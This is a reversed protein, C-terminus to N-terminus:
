VVIRRKSRLAAIGAWVIAFISSSTCPEPVSFEDSMTFKNNNWAIFDQGDVTGDANFDGSCWAATSTFKHRNWEIFDQGDVAGNLDADGVLIPNGSATLIAGALVRWQDLDAHNVFGDGNVDYDLLHSGAVIIAVLQNVWDCDFQPGGTPQNSAGPTDAVPGQMPDLSFQGIVFGGTRDPVRYVHGPVFTGDPGIDTFGLATGYFWEFGPQMSDPQEVLGLADIVSGWPLVDLSGDDDIDLDDNDAGFFGSVLVHTVNDSNEFNLNRIASPMIGNFITGPAGFTSEAALFYGNAPVTLGALPVVAEIVGSNTGSDGIVLYTLDDLSEGATGALEFYEDDDTSPQDIRIENISVAVASSALLVLISFAHFFRILAGGRVITVTSLIALKCGVVIRVIVPGPTM